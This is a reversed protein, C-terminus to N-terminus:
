VTRPIERALRMIRCYFDAWSYVRVIGPPLKHHLNYGQSFLFRYRVVGEADMLKDLDDDLFADYGALAEAKSIGYGVGSFPLSLGHKETIAIATDLFEGDRSTIVGLEHGEDQLLSIFRLADEILEVQLGIENTSVLRTLERYERVTLYNGIVFESKFREPPLDIGFIQKATESKIKHTNVVVGDFDLAIRVPFGRLRKFHAVVASLVTAERLHLFYSTKFHKEKDFCMGQHNEDHPGGTAYETFKAISVPHQVRVKRADSQRV